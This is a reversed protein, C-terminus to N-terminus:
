ALLSSHNNFERSKLLARHLTTAATALSALLQQVALLMTRHLWTGHRVFAQKSRAVKPRSGHDALVAAEDVDATVEYFDRASQGKWTDVHFSPEWPVPRLPL